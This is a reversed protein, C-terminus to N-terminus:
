KVKMYQKIFNVFDGFFKVSVRNKKLKENYFNEWDEQTLGDKNAVLTVEGSSFSTKVYDQLNDQNIEFADAAAQLFVSLPVLIGNLNFVHMKELSSQYDDLSEKITVDDFLFSAVNLAILRLADEVNDGNIVDNGSNVLVFILNELNKKNIPTQEFVANLIELDSSGAAFGGYYKSNKVFSGTSLSYNKDSIEVIAAKAKELNTLMAQLGKINRLRVSSSTTGDENNKSAEEFIAKINSLDIKAEGLILFQDTKMNGMQGSQLISIQFDKNSTKITKIAKLAESAFIEFVNGAKKKSATKSILVNQKFSKNKNKQKKRREEFSSLLQTKELGYGALILDIFDGSSSFTSNLIQSLQENFSTQNSETKEMLNNFLLTIETRLKESLESMVADENGEVIFKDGKQRVFNETVEKIKNPIINNLLDYLESNKNGYSQNLDFQEVATLADRLTAQNNLVRNIENLLESFNSKNNLSTKFYTNLFSVEIARERNALNRLQQYSRQVSKASGINNHAEALLNSAEKYVRQEDPSSNENKLNNSYAYKKYIGAYPYWSKEVSESM